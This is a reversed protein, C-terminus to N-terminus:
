NVSRLPRAKGRLTELLAEAEARAELEPNSAVFAEAHRIALDPKGLQSYCLALLWHADGDNVSTETERALEIAREGARLAEELRGLMRLAHGLGVAAGLYRPAWRLAERYDQAAEAFQGREFRLVAAFHWAYPNEPDRALVADLVRQAQAYERERLLEVAEEVADWRAGDDMM